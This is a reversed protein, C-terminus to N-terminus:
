AMRNTKRPAIGPASTDTVVSLRSLTLNNFARSAAAAVLTQVCLIALTGGMGVYPLLPDWPPSDGLFLAAYAQSLTYNGANGPSTYQVGKRSNSIVVSAVFTYAVFFALVM